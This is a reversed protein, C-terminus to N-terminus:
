AIRKDYRRWYFVQDGGQLGAFVEGAAVTTAIYHKQSAFARPLEAVLQNDKDRKWIGYFPAEGDATSVVKTFGDTVDKFPPFDPKPPQEQAQAAGAAAGAVAVMAWVASMKSM